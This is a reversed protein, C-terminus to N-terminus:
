VNSVNVGEKLKVHIRYFTRVGFCLLMQKATAAAKAVSEFERGRTPGYPGIPEYMNIWCERM